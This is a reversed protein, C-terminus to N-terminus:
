TAVVNFTPTGTATPTFSVVGTSSNITAGVTNNTLSYVLGTQGEENTQANYALDFGVLASTPATSSFTPAATDYTVNLGTSANSTQSNVTQTATITSQGQGLATGPNAVTLTITTGTATGQALVTAGKMLKVLAGNTVNSVLFDLSSANTINDTSSVGTD